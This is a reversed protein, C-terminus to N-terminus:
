TVRWGTRYSSHPLGAFAAYIRVEQSTRTVRSIACAVIKAEEVSVAFAVREGDVVIEHTYNTGHFTAVGEANYSM